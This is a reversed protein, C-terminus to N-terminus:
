SATLTGQATNIDTKGPLLDALEKQMTEETAGSFIVFSVNPLKVDEGDFMIPQGQKLRELNLHSLGVVILRIARGDKQRRAKGSLKIM